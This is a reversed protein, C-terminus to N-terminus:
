DVSYVVYVCVNYVLDDHSCRGDWWRIQRELSSKIIASLIIIELGIGICLDKRFVFGASNNITIM